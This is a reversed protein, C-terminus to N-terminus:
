SDGPEGFSLPAAAGQPLPAGFSDTSVWEGTLVGLRDLDLALQKSFAQHGVTGLHVRDAFLDVDRNDYFLLPVAEDDALSRLAHEYRAYDADGNPHTAIYNDTLPMSVLVPRAGSDRVVEILARVAAPAEIGLDWDGLDPGSVYEFGSVISDLDLHGDEETILAWGGHNGGGVLAKLITYPDRLEARHQWLDSRQYLWRDVAQILSESGTVMRYGRSDLFTQALDENGTDYFDFSTVGIVVVGPNLRPLVVDRAWPVLLSPRAASLAANYSAVGITADVVTPDVGVGILSSGLFVLDAGGTDALDQIRELKLDGELSHFLSPEDLRPELWGAAAEGVALTVLAMAVFTLARIRPSSRRRRPRREAAPPSDSTM